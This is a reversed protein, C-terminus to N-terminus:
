FSTAHRCATVHSRSAEQVGPKPLIHWHRGTSLAAAGRREDPMHRVPAERAARWRLRRSPGRPFAESSLPLSFRAEFGHTARVAVDGSDPDAAIFCAAIGHAAAWAIGAEPGMVYLATSLVDAVFASEHWVTVSESRSVPRGSRPDIIHGIRAGDVLLLDRESGGSTALSGAALSLELVSVDRRVPHAVGVTWGGDSAAGSVAMQGGFDIFWVGSRDREAERVRDLAEGKGFGGADLTVAALRTVACAEPDLALHGLGSLALAAQREEDDPQRGEARLGWVEILSGVAPDFAGDTAAHWEAVRALLACTTAQLELVEGVPQRNLTSLVSDDRWTSLEDETREIVRVMRELKALGTERDPAEVVFTALTGMLFVTREVRVPQEAGASPAPSASVSVGVFLLWAVPRCTALRTM